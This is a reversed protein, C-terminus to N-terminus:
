SKLLADIYKQAKKALSDEPYSKVIKEYYEKAKDNNKNKEFAQGAALLAKPAEKGGAYDAAIRDYMKVETDLDKIDKRAIEAALYLEEVAKDDKYKDALRNLVAIAEAPKSMEERLIRAEAKYAARAEQTDPYLKIINEYVEVALPYQKKKETLKPLQLYAAWAEPTGPFNETIDRYVKIAALDDNINEALVDGLLRKARAMLASGPYVHVLKEYALRAQLYEKKQSHLQGLALELADRGAYSPFRVFFDAFEATLPAYFDQGFRASMETLVYALKEARGTFGAAKSIELLVPKEKKGMKKDATISLLQSAAAGSESGPYEQNLKILNLVASKYDGLKLNLNVKLLLAEDAFENDPYTRLWATLQPLIAELVDEDKSEGSTKFFYDWEIAALGDASVPKSVAPAAPAAASGPAIIPLEANKEVPEILAPEIQTSAAAAMEAPMQQASAAASFFASFSLALFTFVLSMKSLPMM